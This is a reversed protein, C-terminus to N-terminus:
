RIIPELLRRRLIRADNLSWDYFYGSIRSRRSLFRCTAPDAYQRLHNLVAEDSGGFDASYWKYIKSIRLGFVGRKVARGSNIYKWAADNLRNDLDQATWATESLNPCGYSACNLAYHIRPDNFVPRIIGSEIDNLSLPKGLVTVAGEDDFPGVFDTFKQKIQRVSRLRYNDLIFIITRANYLNLWYALQESRNLTRVDVDQLQSVYGQLACRDQCSVQGYHIRNIGVSDTVLYRSLFWDLATHDVTLFSNPDSVQFIPDVLSSDPIGLSGSGASAAPTVTNQLQENFQFQSQGQDFGSASQMIAPQGFEPNVFSQPQTFSQTPQAFSQTPQAFSQVARSSSGAAAPAASRSGSQYAFSPTSGLCLMAVVIISRAIM